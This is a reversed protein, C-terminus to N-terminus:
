VPLAFLFEKISVQDQTTSTGAHKFSAIIYMNHRRACRKVHIEDNKSDNKLDTDYFKEKCEGHLIIM